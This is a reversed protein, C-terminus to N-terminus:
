KKCIQKPNTYQRILEALKQGDAPKTLYHLCGLEKCQKEDVPDDSVTLVIVPMKTLIGERNMTELVEKGSMVPLHLDLLMVSKKFFDKWKTIKLFEVAEKGDKLRVIRDEIGQESLGAKLLFAHGDDDEVHVIM